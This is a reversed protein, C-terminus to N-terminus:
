SAIWFVGPGPYGALEEGYLFLRMSHRDHSDAPGLPSPLPALLQFKLQCVSLLHPIETIHRRTSPLRSISSQIDAGRYIANSLHHSSTNTIISFIYFFPLMRVQTQIKTLGSTNFVRLEEDLCGCSVIRQPADQRGNSGCITHTRTTSLAPMPRAPSCWGKTTREIRKSRWMSRSLRITICGGVLRSRSELRAILDMVPPPPLSRSAM